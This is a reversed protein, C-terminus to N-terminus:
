LTHQPNVRAERISTVKATSLTRAVSVCTGSLWSWTLSSPEVPICLLLGSFYAFGSKLLINNARPITKLRFAWGFRRVPDEESQPQLSHPLHQAHTSASTPLLRNNNFVIRVFKAGNGRMGHSSASNEWNWAAEM